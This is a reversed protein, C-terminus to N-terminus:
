FMRLQLPANENFFCLRGSRVVLGAYEAWNALMAGLKEVTLDALELHIDDLLAKAARKSLMGKNGASQMLAIFQEFTSIELCQERFLQRRTEETGTIFEAGIKTLAYWDKQKDLEIFKLNQGDSLVKGVSQRSLLLQEELQQITAKGGLLDIKQLCEIISNRFCLPFKYGLTSLTKRDVAAEFIAEDDVKHLHYDRKNYYALRAYHLWQTTTQAYNDWTKESAQVSPFLEQLLAALQGRSLTKNENLESLILSVVRNRKMHGQLFAIIEEQELNAVADAITFVKNRVNILGLNRLDRSLNYISAIQKGTEAIEEDISLQERERVKEFFRFAGHPSTYFYYADEIPVNGTILFERFIDSYADYKVNALSDGMDETIKVLIRKDIFRHLSSDINSIEFSESLRRLTTPLLPAIARLLSREEDDLGALDDEFLDQLKLNTEILENETIGHLKQELIHACLKKLLWPLGRSFAALQRTLSVSLKSGWQIELQKLIEATEEQGFQTLTQLQISERVIDDREHHPFGEALSWLDSKWAFGFLIPLQKETVNLFLTRIASTVDPYEFVKEFQDFFLVALYNRKSITKHIDALTVILSDLGQVRTTGLDKNLEPVQRLEFLLENIADFLFSVDDCLRSDIPLFIVKERQFLYRAKLALSSKGIGSKGSILFGRTSTKGTRVNKVFGEFEALQVNRGVFFEPAAPFRYDFWSSSMRVRVVARSPSVDDLSSPPLETLNFCSLKSIALDTKLKLLRDITSKETILAGQHNYLAVANPETGDTSMLLQAWFLQPTRKEAEVCLLQTDGCIRHYEHTSKQQIVEPLALGYHKILLKVIDDHYYCEIENSYVNKLDNEWVETASANLSSLTFLYGRVNPNKNRKTLFKFGFKQIDTSNLSNDQAKCEAFFHVQGVITVGEVDIEKGNERKNLHTVEMKLCEFLDRILREFLHGKSDAIESPTKGSGLIHLFVM